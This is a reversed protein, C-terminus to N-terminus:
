SPPDFHGQSEAIANVAAQQRALHPSPVLTMLHRGQRRRICRLCVPMSVGRSAVTIGCNPCRVHSM